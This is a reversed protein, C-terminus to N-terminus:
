PQSRHCIYKNTKAAEGYKAIAANDYAKAADEKASFRGITTKGITARWKQTQKCFSVGKFGSTNNRLQGAAHINQAKTLWRLNSRSNNLGNGDAHDRQMGKAPPEGLLMQHMYFRRPKQITTAAYRTYSKTQGYWSYQRVLSEDARDVIVFGGNTLPIEVTTSQPM